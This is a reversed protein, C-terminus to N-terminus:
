QGDCPFGLRELARIEAHLTGAHAVCFDGKGVTKGALALTESLM